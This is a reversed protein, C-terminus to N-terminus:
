IFKCVHALKGAVIFYKGDFALKKAPEIEGLPIRLPKPNNGRLIVNGRTGNPTYTLFNGPSGNHTIREGRKLKKPQPSEMCAVLHPETETFQAENAETSHDTVEAASLRDTVFKEFKEQIHKPLDRMQERLRRYMLLFVNLVPDSKTWGGGRSSHGYFWVQDRYHSREGGETSGCMLGHWPLDRLLIPVIDVRKIMYPVLGM